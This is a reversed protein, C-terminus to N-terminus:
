TRKCKGNKKTYGKRCRASKSLCRGSKSKRSGKSCRSKKAM